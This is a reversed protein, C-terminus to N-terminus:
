PKQNKWIQLHNLFYSLSQSLKELYYIEVEVVVEPSHNVMIGIMEERFRLDKNYLEKLHFLLFEELLGDEALEHYFRKPQVYSKIKDPLNKKRHAPM